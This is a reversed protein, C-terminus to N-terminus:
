CVIHYINCYAAVLLLVDIDCSSFAAINRSFLM